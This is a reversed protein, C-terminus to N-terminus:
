SWCNKLISLQMKCDIENVLESNIMLEEPPHGLSYKHITKDKLTVKQCAGSNSNGCLSSSLNNCVGFFIQCLSSDEGPICESLQSHM